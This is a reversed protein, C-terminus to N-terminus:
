RFIYLIMLVTCAAIVGSLVLTDQGLCSHILM